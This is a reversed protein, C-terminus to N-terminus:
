QHGVPATTAPSEDDEPLRVRPRHRRRCTFHSSIYNCTVPSRYQPVVVGCPAVGSGSRDRRRVGSSSRPCALVRWRVHRGRVPFLRRPGHGPKADPLTPPVPLRGAGPTGRPCESLRGAPRYDPVAAGAQRRVVGTLRGAAERPVGRRVRGARARREARRGTTGATERARDPRARPRHGGRRRKSPCQERFRVSYYIKITSRYSLNPSGDDPFVPVPVLPGRALGPEPCRPCRSLCVTRHSGPRRGSGDGHRTAPM